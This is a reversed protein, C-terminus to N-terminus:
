RNSLIHIRTYLGKSQNLDKPKSRIRKSTLINTLGDWIHFFCSRPEEHITLVLLNEARSFAVYYHRLRDFETMQRENEFVGRKSIPFLDRYVQKQVAFSRHLLSVVVIPFELGKSRHINMNQLFGKPIPKDPDEYEFVM